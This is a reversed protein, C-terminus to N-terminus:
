RVLRLRIPGKATSPDVIQGRQTIEIKGAVVLRRAAQRAAEMQQQWTEPFVVRAAEGPCITAERARQRLLDLICDELALDLRGPKRKRCADSCFRVEDWCREWAKRWVIRRGCTQCPKEPLMTM